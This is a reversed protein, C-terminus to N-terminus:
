KKIDNNTKKKLIGVVNGYTVFNIMDYKNNLKKYFDIFAYSNDVDDSIFLGNEKVKNLVANYEFYQWNYTHDSDHLFIDIEPISAVLSKFLNKADNEFIKLDWNSKLEDPVVVGVDNKIDVSILKGFGNKKLASLFFFSSTGNAVGTELIIKPKNYLTIMYFIKAEDYGIYWPYTLKVESLLKKYKSFLNNFEENNEKVFDDMNLYKFFEDANNTQMTAVRYLEKLEPKSAKRFYKKCIKNVLKSEYYSLGDIIGEKHIKYIIKKFINPEM